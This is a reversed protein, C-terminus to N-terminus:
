SNTEHAEELEDGSGFPVDYDDDNGSLATLDWTNSFNRSYTLQMGSQDVLGSDVSQDESESDSLWQHGESSDREISQASTRLSNASFRTQLLRQAANEHAPGALLSDSVARLGSDINDNIEIRGIGESLRLNEQSDENM